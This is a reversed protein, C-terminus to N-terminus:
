SGALDGGLDNFREAVERRTAIGWKAYIHRIHAVVTHPSLLLDDAIGKTTLGAAVREAVQQERQSLGMPGSSSSSSKLRTRVGRERLARLVRGADRAAGLEDYRAVAARLPPTADEPSSALRGATELLRAGVLPRDLTALEYGVAVLEDVARDQIARTARAVASVLANRPNLQARRGAENIVLQLGVADGAAHCITALTIDDAFDSPTTMSPSPDSLTALALESYQHAEIMRGAELAALALSWRGTRTLGAGDALSQVLPTAEDRLKIDGTHLAIRHLVVGATANAFDGLDLQLALELVTEAQTRADELRGLDYLTRSRLMMWYAEAIVNKAARVESLGADALRLAEDSHGLSNRLFAMWLGEPLWQAPAVGTSAFRELATRQLREAADFQNQYFFLVSESADITSLAVRDRDQDALTRAEDLSARLGSANAMNAYNLARVALLQLRTADSVGRLALAESAEAVAGEFDTETLRRAVALGVRARSEMGLAPALARRLEMARELPGGALIIPILTAVQEAHRAEGDALSVALTALEAAGQTDTDALQSAAAVLLEISDDEGAQAITVITTALAAPREGSHLRRFLVERAMARRLTPTLSEWAATQVTDHRFTLKLGTDLVFGHDLLEQVAPAAETATRGIVDLVDALPFERGYLSGVQAIRVAENSLQNLRDRASTSVRAPVVDAEIDVTGAVPRLLGEEELGRLLELVVLPSGSARAIADEVKPGPKRGLVDRALADVAKDDLRSLHAVSGSNALLGIFRQHAPTFTGPRTALLWYIPVGQLQRLLTTLAGLSGPDLWQLDDVVVLVGTQGAAEELGDGLLRTLWYQPALGRMLTRLDEESILPPTTREAADMLAGLPSTSSDVDPALIM